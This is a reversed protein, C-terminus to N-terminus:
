KPDNSIAHRFVNYIREIRCIREDMLEQRQALSELEEKFGEVQFKLEDDVENEKVQVEITELREELHNLDGRCNEVEEYAENATDRIEDFDRERVFEDLDLNQITDVADQLENLDIDMLESLAYPDIDEVVRNMREISSSLKETFIEMAEKLSMDRRIKLIETQADEIMTGESM